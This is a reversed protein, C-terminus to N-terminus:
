PEHYYVHVTAATRLQKLYNTFATKQKQELLLMILKSKIEEFLLTRSPVKDYVKIIHIGFQTKVTKSTENIPTSFAVKEFEPVMQGQYFYGLDGGQLRTQVDQSYQKALQEFSAGGNLKNLIMQLIEDVHRYDKGDPKILIHAAHIQDPLIFDNPNKEYYEQAEAESVILSHLVTTNLYKALQLQIRLQEHVKHPDNGLLTLVEEKSINFRQQETEIFHDIEEDSVVVGAQTVQQQLIKQIVLQELFQEKTISQTQTGLAVYEKDLEQQLIPEGNVVAAYGTLSGLPLLLLLNERYYFGVGLLVFLVIWILRGIRFRLAGMEEAFLGEKM